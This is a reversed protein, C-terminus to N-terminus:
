ESKEAGFQTLLQQLGEEEVMRAAKTAPVWRRERRDSEPFKDAMDTVKLPYVQTECPVVAGNDFHKESRYSGYATETLKGSKVGAEEWAEQKAAEAASLGDIPWGKPLIWRGSSSTALLVDPGSAGKRYCLAAVQLARPRQLLPRLAGTWFSQLMSTM